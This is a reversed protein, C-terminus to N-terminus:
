IATALMRVGLKPKAISFVRGLMDAPTHEDVVSEAIQLPMNNKEAFIPADIFLEHVFVDVGKSQEAEQRTPISDGTFAMSLGNWELRYNVAGILIHDTPFAFIKVGNEEYIKPEGATLRWSNATSWRL